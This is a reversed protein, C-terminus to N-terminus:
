RIVFPGAVKVPVQPTDDVKVFAWWTGSGPDLDAGPGVLAAVWYTEDEPVSEWSAAVYDGAVPDTDEAASLAVFVDLGTPDIYVGERLLRFPILINEVSTSRIQHAM